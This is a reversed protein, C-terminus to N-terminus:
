LSKMCSQCEFSAKLNMRDNSQKLKFYKIELAKMEKKVRALDSIHSKVKNRKTSKEHTWPYKEDEDRIGDNERQNESVVSDNLSIQPEYPTGYLIDNVQTLAALSDELPSTTGMSPNNKVMSNSERLEERMNSLIDM